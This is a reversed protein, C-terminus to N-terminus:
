RKRKEGPAPNRIGPVFSDLFRELVTERDILRGTEMFLSTADPLGAEAFDRENQGINLGLGLILAEISDGRSESEYLIGACKRGHALLDNPPKITFPADCLGALVDRLIGATFVSLEEFSAEVAGAPVSVSLWLGKGEHSVWDRGHTGRGKKQAEATVVLWSDPDGATLRRVAALTSDLVSFHFREMSVGDILLRSRFVPATGHGNM